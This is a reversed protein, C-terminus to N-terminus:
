TGPVVRVVQPRKLRRATRLEAMLSARTLHVFGVHHGCGADVVDSWWADDELCVVTGATDRYGRLLGRGDGANFGKFGDDCGEDDSPLQGHLDAPRDPLHQHFVVVAGGPTEYIM